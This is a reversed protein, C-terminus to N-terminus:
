KKFTAMPALGYAAPSISRHAVTGRQSRLVRCPSTRTTCPPAEVVWGGGNGRWRPILGEQGDNITLTEVGAQELVLTPRAAGALRELPNSVAGALNQGSTGGTTLQLDRLVERTPLPCGARSSTVPCRQKILEALGREQKAERPDAGRKQSDILRLINFENRITNGM